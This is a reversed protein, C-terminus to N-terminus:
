FLNLVGYYSAVILVYRVFKGFAMVSMVKYKDVRMIGLAVLLAEGIVPVFSLAATWFGYKQIMMDARKMRRDSIRFLRQVTAKNTLYGIMFCTIGGLTNGLTAVLTLSVANLGLNLFFVLLVESAIPVISGSLFSLIGMGWYGYDKFFEILTEGM